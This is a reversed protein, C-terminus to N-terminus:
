EISRYFELLRGSTRHPYFRPEVGFRNIHIGPSPREDVWKEILEPEIHPPLRDIIRRKAKEWPEGLQNRLLRILILDDPSYRPM